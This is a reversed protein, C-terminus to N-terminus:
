RGFYKIELPRVINFGIFAFGFALEFGIDGGPLSSDANILKAIPGVGWNQDIGLYTGLVGFLFGVIAAIGIPYRSKDNYGEIDYGKFGKKYFFHESLTMAQYIALYYGIMNMFNEMVDEFKYYGPICIALTLFNGVITWVIRPVKAFGSWFAQTSLAITYMNPINNAVTSLALIVACFQGFGGLSDVALIAFMLGGNQHKEYYEAWVDSKQIGTIAAAGIIMTFLLPTILGIVLGWFIKWKPYDKRMFVTYDAAYTTWGTAFGFIAGGFSLVAGATAEGSHFEGADFNGSIKIRAIFVFFVVVNPIWSWKEYFHIVNYGFMSVVITMIVLILCGAWPPLEHPQNVMNLLQASVMINVAGWGICAIATIFAFLRSGYDGVLFRSLIMQRLGFEPGFMSFFAVPILGLMNFFIITLVSEWFSLGMKAGLMGLAMAAIVMNASFWMSAATLVTEKLNREHEEIREIGKTEARILHSISNIFSLKKSTTTNQFGESQEGFYLEEDKNSSSGKELDSLKIDYEKTHDKSSSM